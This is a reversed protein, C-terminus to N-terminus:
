FVIDINRTPVTCAVIFITQGKKNKHYIDAYKNVSVVVNQYQNNRVANFIPTEGLNNVANINAGLRLCMEVANPNDTKMAM